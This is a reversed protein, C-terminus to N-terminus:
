EKVAKLSIDLSKVSHTLAGVSIFNVGTEAISRINDETIGGSAEAMAKNGIMKVCHEMVQLDMNDLMIMDVGGCELAEKVEEPNRTEVEIKIKLDRKQIYDRAMEVARSIGGAYDIHNDKLMIM